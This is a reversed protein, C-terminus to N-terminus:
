RRPISLVSIMAATWSRDAGIIGASGCVAVRRQFVGARGLCRPRAGARGCTAPRGLPLFAWACGCTASAIAREARGGLDFRDGPASSRRCGFGLWAATGRGPQGVVGTAAVALDHGSLLLPALRDATGAHDCHSAFCFDAVPGGKAAPERGVQAQPRRGPGGEGLRAAGLVNGGTLTVGQASRDRAMGRESEGPDHDARKEDESGVASPEHQRRGRVVGEALKPLHRFRCQARLTTFVPVKARWRQIRVRAHADGVRRVRGQERRRQRCRAYRRGDVVVGPHRRRQGFRAVRRACLVAGAEGRRPAGLASSRDLGRDSSFCCRRAPRHHRQSHGSESLM